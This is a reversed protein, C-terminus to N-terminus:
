RDEGSESSPNESNSFEEELTAYDRWLREEGKGWSQKYVCELNLEDGEMWRRREWSVKKM